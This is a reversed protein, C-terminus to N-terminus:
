CKRHKSAMWGLAPLSSHNSAGTNRESVGQGLAQLAAMRDERISEGLLAFLGCGVVRNWM